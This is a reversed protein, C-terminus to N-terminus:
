IPLQEWLLFHKWFSTGLWMRSQRDCSTFLRPPPPTYRHARAQIFGSASESVACFCFCSNISSASAWYTGPAAPLCLLAGTAGLNLLWMGQVPLFCSSPRCTALLLLNKIGVGLCQQVREPQEGQMGLICNVQVQQSCRLYLVGSMTSM